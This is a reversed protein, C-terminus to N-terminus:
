DPLFKLLVGVKSPRKFSQSLESQKFSPVFQKLSSVQNTRLVVVGVFSM